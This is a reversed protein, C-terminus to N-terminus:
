VKLELNFVEDPVEIIKIDKGDYKKGAMQVKASEAQEPTDFEIFVSGAEAGLGSEGPRVIRCYSVPGFQEFEEQMDAEIERFEKEPAKRAARSSMFDSVKLIRSRTKPQSPTLELKTDKSSQIDNIAAAAAAAAKASTEVTDQQALVNTNIGLVQGLAGVEEDTRTVKLPRGLLKLGDLRQAKSAEDQTSVEVLCKSPDEEDVWVKLVPNKNGSDNLQYELMKKNLFKKLDEESINFEFPVNWVMLRRARRNAELVQDINASFMNSRTVWQFGDWFLEREREREYHKNPPAAGALRRLWPHPSRTRSRGVLWSATKMYESDTSSLSSSSQRRRRQSKIPSRRRGRPSRRRRRDSERSRRRRRYSDEKM